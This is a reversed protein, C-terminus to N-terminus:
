QVTLGNVKTELIERPLMEINESFNYLLNGNMTKQVPATQQIKATQQVPATEQLPLTGVLRHEVRASVTVSKSSTQSTNANTASYVVNNDIRNLVLWIFLCALLGSIIIVIWFLKNDNRM